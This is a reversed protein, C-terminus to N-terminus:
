EDLLDGLQRAIAVRNTRKGKIYIEFARSSWRGVRKVEEDDFGRSGLITPIGARFSHASITGKAFQAHRGLLSRLYGNFKRDTLPTGDPHCFLPMHAPRSSNRRWKMYAKVPCLPGEAEFVDVVTGEGAKNEKPCKLTISLSNGKSTENLQVDRTLLTHDPDFCSETKSVLEGIRFAGFFMVSCVAWLMLKTEGALESKRIREKLLKMLAVTMPLRKKSSDGEQRKQCAEMNARGRLAQKVLESRLKPPPLGKMIHLQRLGALYSNTTSVKLGKVEILWYIFTLTNGATMPWDFTVRSEKQCQLAMREATRYASWTKNTKGHNIWEAVKGKIHEPMGENDFM